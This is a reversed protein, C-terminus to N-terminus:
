KIFYDDASMFDDNLEMVVAKKQAVYMGLTSLNGEGEYNRM